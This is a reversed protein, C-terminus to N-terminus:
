KSIATAVEAVPIQLKQGVLIRDTNLGNAKRLASLSVGNKRAIRTLNDGRKVQYVKGTSVAKAVTPVKAAAETVSVSNRPIVISKGVRLKRPDLGPNAGVISEVKTGYQKALSYLRDGPQIKYDITLSQSPSPDTEPAREEANVPVIEPSPIPAVGAEPFGSGQALETNYLEDTTEFGPTRSVEGVGPEDLIVESSITPELNEVTEYPAPETELPVSLGRTDEEFDRYLDNTNLLPIEDNPTKTTTTAISTSEPKCGQMLLLGSIPIVHLAVIGFVTVLIKTKRHKRDELSSGPPLLPNPHSM